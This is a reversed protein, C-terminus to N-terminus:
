LQEIAQPQTEPCCALLHGQAGAPASLVGRRRRGGRAPPSFPFPAFPRRGPSAGGEGTPRESALHRRLARSSLPASGAPVAPSSRPAGTPLAPRRRLSGPVPSQAAGRCRRRPPFARCGPSPERVAKESRRPASQAGAAARCKRLTSAASGHASCAPGGPCGGLQAPCRWGSLYEPFMAEGRKAKVGRRYCTAGARNVDKKM